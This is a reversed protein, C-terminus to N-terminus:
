DVYELHTGHIHLIEKAKEIEEAPGNIVLLFKGEELHEKCRVVKDKNIGLTTLLTVLGGSVLGIDFGAIAGVLAGAGYLFGFGPIAFTGIGALLGLVIM